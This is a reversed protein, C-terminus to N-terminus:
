MTWKIPMYSKMTIKISVNLYLVTMITHTHGKIKNSSKLFPIVVKSFLVRLM